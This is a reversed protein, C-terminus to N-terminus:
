FVGTYIPHRVFQYAGRTIIVRQAPVFGISRGLSFRAYLLVAGSAAALANSAVIPVVPVGPQSTIQFVPIGYTAVFALLWFWPNPTIRVPARRIVMTVVLVLLQVGLIARPFNLSRGLWRYYLDISAPVVAVIAIL